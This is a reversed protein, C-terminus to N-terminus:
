GGFNGFGIEQQQAMRECAPVDDISGRNRLHAAPKSVGLDVGGHLMVRAEQGIVVVYLVELRRGRGWPMSVARVGNADLTPSAPADALCIVSCPAIFPMIAADRGSAELGSLRPSEPEIWRGPLALRRKSGSKQTELYVAIVRRVPHKEGRLGHGGRAGAIMSTSRRMPSSGSGVVVTGSTTPKAREAASDDIVPTDIVVNGQLHWSSLVHWLARKSAPRKVKM